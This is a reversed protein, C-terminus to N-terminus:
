REELCLVEIAEAQLEEPGLDFEGMREIVATGTQQPPVGFPGDGREADVSGSPVRRDTPRAPAEIPDPGFDEPGDHVHGAVGHHQGAEAGHRGERRRGESAHEVGVLRGAQEAADGGM